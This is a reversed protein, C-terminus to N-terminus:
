FLGMQGRALECTERGGAECLAALPAARAKTDFSASVTVSGWIAPGSAHHLEVTTTGECKASGDLDVVRVHWRATGGVFSGGRKDERVMIPPAGERMLAVAVFRTRRTDPGRSALSESASGWEWPATALLHGWAEAADAKTPDQAPTHEIRPYRGVMGLIERSPVSTDVSFLLRLLPDAGSADALARTAKISARAEDRLRAHYVVLANVEGAPLKGKCAEELPALGLLPVEPLRDAVREGLEAIRALRQNVEARAPAVTRAFLGAGGLWAALAGLV